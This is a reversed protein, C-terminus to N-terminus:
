HGAILNRYLGDEDSYGGDSEFRIYVEHITTPVHFTPLSLPGVVGNQVGDVSFLVLRFEEPTGVPDVSYDVLSESAGASDAEVTVFDFGPEGDSLYGFTLTSAGQYKLIISYDWDNGYGDRVWLLDHKALVAANGTIPGVRNFRTNVSWYNSGDNLIRNDYKM